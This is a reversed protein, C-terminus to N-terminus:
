NLRKELRAGLNPPSDGCRLKHGERGRGLGVDPFNPFEM